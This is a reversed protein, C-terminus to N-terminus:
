REYVEKTIKEHSKGCFETRRALHLGHEKPLLDLVFDAPYRRNWRYLVLRAIKEEFPLLCERESFCFDEEGAADLFDERVEAAGAEFLPASYPHILLQGRSAELVDRVVLADRSQRKQLFARGLQEDVCVFVTM